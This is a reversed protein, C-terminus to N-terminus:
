EETKAIEDIAKQLAPPIKGAEILGLTHDLIVSGLEGMDLGREAAQSKLRRRLKETVFIQLRVRASSESMLGLM